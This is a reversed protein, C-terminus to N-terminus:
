KIQRSHSDATQTIINRLTRTSLLKGKFLFIKAFGPNTKKQRELLPAVVKERFDKFSCNRKKWEDLIMQNRKDLAPREKQAKAIGGAKNKDRGKRTNVLEGRIEELITPKMANMAHVRLTPRKGMAYDFIMTTRQLRLLDIKSLEAAVQKRAKEFGSEAQKRAREFRILEKPSLKKM